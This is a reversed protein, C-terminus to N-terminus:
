KGSIRYPTHELDLHPNYYPDGAALQDKWKTKFYEIESVFRDIKKNTEESGRSASEHHYLEVNPNFIILKGAQRIKLCLDVDNFAVKLSEDFGGVEAFLKKSMMMCAATVASVDQVIIGRGMYGPNEKPLRSFSHGAIGQFGLVVGGHQISNDAYYLKAGVAGVDKLQIYQLMQEIWDPAIVETDNNLFLLKEGRAFQVAYNNIASYNFEGEWKVVNVNHAKKLHSYYAFIEKSTSNNEVIIIEFNKYISRKYISNICRQLDALHEKNPIIISVLPEDTLKYDIAYFGLHKSNKVKGEYGIRHLHAAVARAGAEYAYLKNGANEATSESHSRWHYLIEPIHVIKDAKETVRLILDFDQSGDFGPQFKGVQYILDRKATFLHTIYNCSRLLDPSWDPKFHPSFRRGGDFTIKDEDSYLVDPGENDNIAKVISYLAWPPLLDDHDLLSIYNGSALDLAANSNGVIGYNEELLTIKIRSDKEAYERLVEAVHEKNSHGDALCLEWKGYTQGRVSEIMDILM